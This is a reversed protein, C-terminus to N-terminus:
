LTVAVAHVCSLDRALNRRESEDLAKGPHRHGEYLHILIPLSLQSGGGATVTDSQDDVPRRQGVLGASSVVGHRGPRSAVQDDEREALDALGVL